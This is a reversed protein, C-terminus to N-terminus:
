SGRVQEFRRGRRPNVLLRKRAMLREGLIVLPISCAMVKEENWSGLCKYKMVADITSQFCNNIVYSYALIGNFEKVQICSCFRMKNNANTM